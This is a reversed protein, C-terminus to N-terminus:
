ASVPVLAKTRRAIADIPISNVAGWSDPPMEQQLNLRVLSWGNVRLLIYQNDEKGIIEQIVEWNVTFPVYRDTVLGIGETFYISEGTPLTGIQEREIVKREFNFSDLTRGSSWNLHIMHLKGDSMRAIICRRGAREIIKESISQFRLIRGAFNYVLEEWQENLFTWGDGYQFFSVWDCELKVKKASLTDIIVAPYINEISKQFQTYNAEIPLEEGFRNM